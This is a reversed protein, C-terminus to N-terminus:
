SSLKSLFGYVSGVTSPLTGFPTQQITQPLTTQTQVFSNFTLPNAGREGVLFVNSSLDLAIGHAIPSTGDQSTAWLATGGTNYAIVASSGTTTRLIGYPNTQITNNMVGSYNNITLPYNFTCALYINKQSDTVISRADAYAIVTDKSIASTAWIAKGGSTYKALFIGNNNGTSDYSYLNAFPRVSITQYLVGSTDNITLPYSNYAGTICLQSSADVAIALGYNEHNGGAGLLGTVWNCLGNTRYRTLFIDTSEANLLSTLTGFPFTTGSLASNFRINNTFSGIMYINARSDTALGYPIIDRGAAPSQSLQNTAWEVVGSADYQILFGTYTGATSGGALTTYFTTIIRQGTDFTGTASYVQINTNTKGCIILNGIPDTCISYPIGGVGNVTATNTNTAWRVVGASNFQALGVGGYNYQLSGYFNQNIWGNDDPFASNTIPPQANYLAMSNTYSFFDTEGPILRFIVSVNNFSDITIFKGADTQNSLQYYGTPIVGVITTAWVVSGAPTYKILFLNTNTPSLRNLHFGNFLWGYITEQIVGNANQSYSYVNMPNTYYGVVYINGSLDTVASLAGCASDYLGEGADVAWQTIGHVTTVPVPPVPPVIVEECGCPVDPVMITNGRSWTTGWGANVDGIVSADKDNTNSNWRLFNKPPTSSAELKQKLRVHEAQARDSILKTLTSADFCRNTM